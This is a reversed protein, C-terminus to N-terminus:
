ASNSNGTDADDAGNSNSNGLQEGISNEAGPDIAELVTTSYSGCHPCKHYIFNFGVTAKKECDNCFIEEMRHRFEEPITQQALAEDIRKFFETMDAVSHYTKEPMKEEVVKEAVPKVKQSGKQLLAPSHLISQIYKSKEMEPISSDNMIQKVLRRVELEEMSM